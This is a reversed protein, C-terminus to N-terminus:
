RGAGAGEPGHEGREFRELEEALAWFATKPRYQNDLIAVGPATLNGQDTHADVPNWFVLAEGAPVWLWEYM